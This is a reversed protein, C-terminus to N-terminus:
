SLYMGVLLKKCTVITQRANKVFQANKVFEKVQTNMKPWYHLQKLKLTKHYGGHTSTPSELALNIDKSTLTAPVCLKWVFDEQPLNTAVSNTKKYIYGEKVLIDPLFSQDEM